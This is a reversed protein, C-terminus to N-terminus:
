FIMSTQFDGVSEDQEKFHAKQLDSITYIADHSVQRQPTSLIMNDKTTSSGIPLSVIRLLEKLSICYEERSLASGVTYM